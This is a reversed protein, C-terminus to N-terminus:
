EKKEFELCLLQAECKNGEVAEYYSRNENIEDSYDTIETPHMGDTLHTYLTSDDGLTVTHTFLTNVSNTKSNGLYIMYKDPFCLYQQTKEFLELTEDKVDSQFLVIEDWTLLDKLVWYDSHLTQEYEADDPINIEGKDVLEFRSSCYYIAEFNSMEAESYYKSFMEDYIGIEDGHELIVIDPMVHYIDNMLDSGFQWLSSLNVRLLSVNTQAKVPNEKGVQVSYYETQTTPTLRSIM